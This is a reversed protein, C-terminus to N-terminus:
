EDFDMVLRFLGEGVAHLGDEGSFEGFELGFDALDGGDEVAVDVLIRM